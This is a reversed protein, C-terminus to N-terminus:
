VIGRQGSWGGGAEESSESGGGRGSSGLDVGGEGGLLDGDVGVDVVFAGEGDEDELGHLCAAVGVGRSGHVFDARALLVGHGFGRVVVVTAHHDLHRAGGGHVGDVVGFVYHMRVSANPVIEAVLAHPIAARKHIHRPPHRHITLPILTLRQVARRPIIPIM